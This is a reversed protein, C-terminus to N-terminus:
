QHLCDIGIILLEVSPDGYKEGTRRSCGWCAVGKRTSISISVSDNMLKMCILGQETHSKGEEGM